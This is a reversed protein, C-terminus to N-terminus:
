SKKNLPKKKTRKHIINHLFFLGICIAFIGLGFYLLELPNHFEMTLVRKFFTVILVMVVVNSIKNKLEELTEIELVKSTRKEKAIDVKSIFLEYVGFSFIILVIGILYLDISGIVISLINDSFNDIAIHNFYKNWIIILMKIIENSAIIFLMVASILSFIVPLLVIFRSSWLGFEFIREILNEKNKNETM